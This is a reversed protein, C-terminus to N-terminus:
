TRPATSTREASREAGSPRAQQSARGAAVVIQRPRRSRRLAEVSLLALAVWIVAFGAWRSPSMSEGAWTVGLLFVTLPNIYQLFGLVTLPIVRAAAGFMLLPVATVVGAAVMVAIHGAGYGTFHATGDVQLWILYGLAPLMLVSSEGLLSIAAPIQIIRKILGYLGFSLALAVAIYPFGHTGLSTLVVGAVAVALALWQVPSLRERLALVGLAVSVLPNIFYGLSAEVVHGNNVAFIYVGWNLAILMAALGVLLWTRATLARVERWRRVLTIGIGMVVASWFMRHALIEVAGAPELLPWYMPFLGWILYAGIALLVGKRM